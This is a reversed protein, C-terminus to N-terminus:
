LSTFLALLTQFCENAPLLIRTQQKFLRYGDRASNSDTLETLGSSEPSVSSVD